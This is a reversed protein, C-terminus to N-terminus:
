QPLLQRRENTGGTRISIHRKKMGYARFCFTCGAHAGEAEGEIMQNDARKITYAGDDIGYVIHSHIDIIGDDMIVNGM